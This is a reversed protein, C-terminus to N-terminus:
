AGLNVKVLASSLPKLESRFIFGGKSKRLHEAGSISTLSELGIDRINLRIDRVIKRGTCNFVNIVSQNKRALTHVHTMEDIGYFTGRKYFDRLSLYTKMAMKLAKYGASQPDSVGGIGLHRVTSAYWWFALLNHNDPGVSRGQELLGSKQGINIHLYLPIEYALNYEYLSIAKGSILDLYSDWMYEFGWNEDFSNGPDYQYYLPHYDQYGSAIRDHAEIIIDPFEKKVNRMVEVLGDAHSQRKLPVEHGHLPDHCPPHAALFDFMFFSVGDRALSLLRRTKEQKWASQTCVKAGNWVGIIQGQEDRRYMGPYEDRSNTNMMLHLSVKLSYRDKVTQVFDKLSIGLHKEDWITSGEVTDWGPDLYLAECGIDAAIEAERYLQKLSYRTSGDGLRWSLNYLENWHVPPNFTQPFKKGHSGMFARFAYYGEKWGGDILEYHTLGFDVKGGIPLEQGSEPDGRWLGAGGFRACFDPTCPEGKFISFEIQGPQYKIVLLGRRGDTWIWGESGHDPLNRGDPEGPGGPVNEWMHPLLDTLAYGTLKRDVRHGFRRRHPVPTLVFDEFGEAWRATNRNYIIKRFGFAIDRVKYRRSGRNCLSIREEFSNGKKPIHFAQQVHIDKPGDPGFDLRGEFLVGGVVDNITEHRECLLSDSRYEKGECELWLAYSYPADAYLIKGKKDGLRRPTIYNGVDITISFRENAITM